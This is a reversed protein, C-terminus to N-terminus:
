KHEKIWALAKQAGVFLEKNVELTPVKRINLSTLVEVDQIDTYELGKAKLQMKIMKCQPCTPSSYIIISDEM